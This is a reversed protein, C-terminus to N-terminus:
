EAQGSRPRRRGLAILSGAILLLAIPAAFVLVTSSGSKSSCGSAIKPEKLTKGAAAALKPVVQLTARALGDSDVADPISRDTLVSAEPQDPAMGFGGPMAIVVVGDIQAGIEGYLFTAYGDPDDFLQPAGGLDSSTLILAIKVPYDARKADAALEKLQDQLKSCVKPQYPVFVNDLLLVDSAPDVDALVRAPVSGALVLLFLLTLAFKLMAREGM